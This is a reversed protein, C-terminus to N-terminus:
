DGMSYGFSDGSFGVSDNSAFLNSFNGILSGIGGIGANVAGPVTIWPNTAADYQLQAKQTNAQIQQAQLAASAAQWRSLLVYALVAVVILVINSDDKM